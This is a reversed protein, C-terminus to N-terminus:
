VAIGESVKEWSEADEVILKWIPDNKKWKVDMPLGLRRDRPRYMPDIKRIDSTNRLFRLDESDLFKDYSEIHPYYKAQNKAV